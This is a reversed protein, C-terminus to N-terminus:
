KFTLKELEYEPFDFIQCNNELSLIINRNLLDYDIYQNLNNNSFEKNTEGISFKLAGDNSIGFKISNCYTKSFKKSIKLTYNEISKQSFEITYAPTDFTFLLFILIINFINRFM